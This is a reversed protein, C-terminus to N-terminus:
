KRYTGLLVYCIQGSTWKHLLIHHSYLYFLCTVCICFASLIEFLFYSMLVFTAYNSYSGYDM